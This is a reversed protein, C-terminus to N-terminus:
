KTHKGRPSCLVFLDEAPAGPEPIDAVTQAMRRHVERAAAAEHKDVDGEAELSRWTGGPLRFVAGPVECRVPVGASWLESERRRGESEVTALARGLDRRSVPYDVSVTDILDGFYWEVAARPDGSGPGERGTPPGGGDPRNSAM